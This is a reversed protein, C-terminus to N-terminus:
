HLQQEGNKPWKKVLRKCFLKFVELLERLRLLLGRSGFSTPTGDNTRKYAMKPQNVTDTSQAVVPITLRLHQRTVHKQYDLLSWGGLTREFHSSFLLGSSEGATNETALSNKGCGVQIRM